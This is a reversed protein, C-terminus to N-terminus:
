QLLVPRELSAKVQIRTIHHHYASMVTCAEVVELYGLKRDRAQCMGTEFFMDLTDISERRGLSHPHSRNPRKGRTCTASDVILLLDRFPAKDPLSSFVPNVLLTEEM